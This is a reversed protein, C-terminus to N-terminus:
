GNGFRHGGFVSVAFYALSDVDVGTVKRGEFVIPDGTAKMPRAAKLADLIRFETESRRCNGLVWREGRENFVTECAKCLLYGKIQRSTNVASGAAVFVPNENDDGASRLLRYIAKPILHSDQLEATNLCLACTGEPM